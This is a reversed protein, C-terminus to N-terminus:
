KQLLQQLFLKYLVKSIITLLIKNLATYLLLKCTCTYISSPQIIIIYLSQIDTVTSTIHLLADIIAKVDPITIM